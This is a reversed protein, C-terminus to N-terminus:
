VLGRVKPVAKLGDSLPCLLSPISWLCYPYKNVALSGLVVQLQGSRPLQEGMYLSSGNKVRLDQMHQLAQETCAESVQM